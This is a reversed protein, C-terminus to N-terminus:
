KMKAHNMECEFDFNSYTTLNSKIKTELFLFRCMNTTLIVKVLCWKAIFNLAVKEVILIFVLFAFM